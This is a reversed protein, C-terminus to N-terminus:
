TSIVKYIFLILHHHISLINTSHLPFPLYHIIHPYTHIPIINILILFYNTFHQYSSHILPTPLTLAVRPKCLKQRTPKQWYVWEWWWKGEMIRKDLRDAMRYRDFFARFHYKLLIKYSVHWCDPFSHYKICIKHM